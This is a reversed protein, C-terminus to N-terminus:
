TSNLISLFITTRKGQYFWGPTPWLMKGDEWKLIVNVALVSFMQPLLSTVLDTNEVVELCVLCVSVPITLYLFHILTYFTGRSLSSSELGFLGLRANSKERSERHNHYHYFSDKRM